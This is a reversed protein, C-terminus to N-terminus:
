RIIEDITRCRVVIAQHFRDVIRVLTLLEFPAYTQDHITLVLFANLFEEGDGTSGTGTFRRNQVDDLFQEPVVNREEIGLFKTLSILEGSSCELIRWKHGNM